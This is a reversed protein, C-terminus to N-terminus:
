AIIEELSGKALDALLLYTLLSREILSDILIFEQDTHINGGRVGLTDIVPIGLAALNNGDCCGGSDKWNINIGMGHGIAQIRKFLKETQDTICKAPRGFHAHFKIHYDPNDFDQILREIHEIVWLEDTHSQIRVDIKAVALEPVQNLADGGEIKGINLTINNKIGNLADIKVLLKALHIIANRGEHFARGVHASRGQVIFTLKGSGRRNKALTGQVDMAPEYVLGLPIQTSVEALLQSSAPSGLEEDANILVDWGLKSAYANKEFAQLAHLMVVLGGKMDAVGPGNLTNKDLKKIHQFHSHSPFVTDMHGVLLIRRKLEPRKRILLADGYQQEILKGQMSYHELKPMSHESITDAISSFYEVLMNKTNNLGELNTSGSNQECLSYLKDLMAPLDPEFM